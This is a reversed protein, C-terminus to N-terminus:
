TTRSAVIRRGLVTFAGLLLGVLLGALAWMPRNPRVRDRIEPALAKDVTRFVYESTVNALMRQNIQAEILRSIAEHTAVTDTHVLEDRLYKLYADTRQVTRRRMERNLDAVLANSWDAALRQDRWEVAVTVLGTKKDEEVFLIKRFAKVARGPTPVDEAPVSWARQDKLWLKEFLEPMLQHQQIFDQLFQRSQLVALAEESQAGMSGGIDIGVLSALGGLSGLAAGIGGGQRQAPILVSAGRYIPTILYSVAAFAVGTAFTAVLVFRWSRAVILLLRLLDVEHTGDGRERFEM